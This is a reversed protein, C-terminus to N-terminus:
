RSVGRAPDLRPADRDLVGTLDRGSLLDAARPRPLINTSAQRKRWRPFRQGSYPRGKHDGGKRVARGQSSQNFKDM